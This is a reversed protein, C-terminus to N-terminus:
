GKGNVAYKGAIEAYNKEIQALVSKEAAQQRLRADFLDDDRYRDITGTILDDLITPNLADLEWSEDGYDVVYGAFRSDAEKAPNPPPNHEEIQDMNLAAREVIFSRGQRRNTFLELREIIDRTMDLGSPDHDGLHIIVPTQGNKIHRLLRQAAAWMESASSYGRCAFDPVQHRRAITSIVGRLADKEVWVEVRYDQDQWLDIAYSYRASAIIDAPNDWTSPAALNRTRDVIADWDVLGALRANNLVNGLRKYEKQQNPIIDRAVMQYYLQRLTLDYGQRAYEEIIDNALDILALTKASFNQEIYAIKTM